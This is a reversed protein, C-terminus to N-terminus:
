WDVRPERNGIHFMSCVGCRYVALNASGTVRDAVRGRKALAKTRYPRKLLGDSRRHGMEREVIARQGPPLAELGSM